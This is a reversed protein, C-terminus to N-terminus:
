ARTVPLTIFFSLEHRGQRVQLRGGLSEVIRQSVAPGVEILSEQVMRMPDFLWMLEGPSVKATRSAMLVQVEDEGRGISISLKAQEGV